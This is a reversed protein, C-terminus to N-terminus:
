SSVGSNHSAQEVLNKIRKNIFPHTSTLQAVSALTDDDEETQSLFAEVDVPVDTMGSTIKLLASVVPQPIGNSAVLAVADASYEGSRRWKYFLLRPLGGLGMMLTTLRVHGFHIHGLEHGIVAQLEESTLREVLGSTLIVTYPEQYGFTFANMKPEQTVVLDVKRPPLHNQAAQFPEHIHPFQSETVQVGNNMMQSRMVAASIYGLAFLLTGIIGGLYGSLLLVFFTIGFGLALDRNESPYRHTDLPVPKEQTKGEIKMKHETVVAPPCLAIFILSCLGFFLIDDLLGVVPLLDDPLPFLTYAFPVLVLFLKLFINVRDDRALRWTLRLHNYFKLLM